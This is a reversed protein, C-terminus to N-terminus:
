TASLRAAGALFLVRRTGKVEGIDATELMFTRSAALERAEARYGIRFDTMGRLYGYLAREPMSLDEVDNQMSRFIALAREHEGADFAKRGRGLCDSYTSCHIAVIALSACVCATLRTMALSGM